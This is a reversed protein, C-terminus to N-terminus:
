HPVAAATAAPDFDIIRVEPETPVRPKLYPKGSATHCAYCGALTQEYATVCQAKDKAAIARKLEKFPGNEISQAIAALDVEQGAANKRVPKARVAWKVNNMSESLYFDALPWNEKQVAGYLNSFHYAVHTMVAAQDPVLSELRKIQQQLQEVQAGADAAVKPADAPAAAASGHHRGGAVVALATASLAVLVFAIPRQM